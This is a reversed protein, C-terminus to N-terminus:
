INKNLENTTRIPKSSDFLVQKHFYPVCSVTCLKNEYPSACKVVFLQKKIIELQKYKNASAIFM